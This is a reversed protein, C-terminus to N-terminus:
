ATEYSTNEAFFRLVYQEKEYSFELDPLKCPLPLPTFAVILGDGFEKNGFNAVVFHVGPILDKNTKALYGRMPSTLVEDTWRAIKGEFERVVANVAAERAVKNRGAKKKADEFFVEWGFVTEQKGNPKRIRKSVEKSGGKELLQGVYVGFFGEFPRTATPALYYNFILRPDDPLDLARLDM